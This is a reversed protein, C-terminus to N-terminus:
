SHRPSSKLNVKNNIDDRKEAQSTRKKKYGMQSEKPNQNQTPYRILHALAAAATRRAPPAPPV